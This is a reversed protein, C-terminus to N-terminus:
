SSRWRSLFFRRARWAIGTTTGLRRLTARTIKKVTEPNVTLAMIDRDFKIRLNALNRIGVDTNYQKNYTVLLPNM